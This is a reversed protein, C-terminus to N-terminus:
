RRAVNHSTLVQPRAPVLCSFCDLNSYILCILLTKPDSEKTESATRRDFVARQVRGHLIRTRCRFLRAPFFERTKAIVTRWLSMRAKLPWSPRALTGAINACGVISGRHRYHVRASHNIGSNIVDGTPFHKERSWPDAVNLGRCSGHIQALL